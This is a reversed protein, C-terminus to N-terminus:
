EELALAPVVQEILECMTDLHEMKLAGLPPLFRVRAPNGGAIFGILGAEYLAAAVRKADAGSGSLPTFAMMGGVGFPGQIHTPYKDALESMRKAFHDAFQNNLGNEGFHGRSILEEIVVQCAMLAWSSGTFTQSILGPQPKYDARYLTACVQTIKGVSVIDAYSDLEYHQFAFPQTTRGFTQVEDFFIAVNRKRLEDLIAVFFERNGGYYGGEGQILELVMAAHKGPHRDLHQRMAGLSKSISHDHNSPDYFPIYDVQITDPLGSRYNPRDTLQSLALTRGAFCDRFALVRNAPAHKQFALKLANENAMAGSTTLFVHELAAGQNAATEVLLRAVEISPLHQQLNGQMVTDCLAADIGAEMLKPHSHGLGHVGIGGIMDMKVSGDALKVFPGNGVGGSLYPYYLNGGRLQSFKNLAEEYQTTLTSDPPQVQTIQSQWESLTERLLQKAQTVRADNLLQEGVTHLSQSEM